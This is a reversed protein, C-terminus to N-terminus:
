PTAMKTKSAAVISSDQDTCSMARIRAFDQYNAVSFPPADAARRLNDGLPFVVYVGGGKRTSFHNLISEVSTNRIDLAPFTAEEPSSLINLATGETPKLVGRINMWLYLGQAKSTGAPAAYRPITMRLLQSTAQPVILPEITVVGGKVGWRYGTNTTLRDLLDAVSKGRWSGEIRQDCLRKDSLVFGMPVANSSGLELLATLASGDNITFQQVVRSPDAVLPREQGVANAGFSGLALFTTLVTLSGRIIKM